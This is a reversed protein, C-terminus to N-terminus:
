VRTYVRIYVHTYVCVYIYISVYMNFDEICGQTVEAMNLLPSESM